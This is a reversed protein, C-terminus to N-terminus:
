RSRQGLERRCCELLAATDVTEGAGNACRRGIRNAELDERSADGGGFGDGVEKGWGALWAELRSCQLAIGASALCHKGPDDLGPPLAAVVAEACGVTSPAPREPSVACGAIGLVALCSARISHKLTV